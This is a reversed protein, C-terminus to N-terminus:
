TSVLLKEVKSDTTQSFDIYWAGVANFPRPTKLVVINDVREKIEQYIDVPAVPVAVIIQNAGMKEVITIAVKMTAGTALGDDIILVNKNKLNLPNLNNRYKQMRRNLEKKEREFVENIQEQTISLRRIINENLVKVDNPGIAGMALEQYGPTGLKRIILVDLPAGLSKSVEYAVPVGGRPLGLVIKHPVDQFDQLKNALKKGASTRNQFRKMYLNFRMEM